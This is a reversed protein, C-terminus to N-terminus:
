RLERTFSALFEAADWRSFKENETDYVVYDGILVNDPHDSDDIWFM